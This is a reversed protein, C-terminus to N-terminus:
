QVFFGEFELCIDRIRTNRPYDCDNDSGPHAHISTAHAGPSAKLFNFFSNILNNKKCDSTKKKIYM